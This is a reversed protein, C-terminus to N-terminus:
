GSQEECQPLRSILGSERPNPLPSFTSRACAVMLSEKQLFGCCVGKCGELRNPVCDRSGQVSGRNWLWSCGSFREPSTAFKSDSNTINTINTPLECSMNKRLRVFAVDICFKSGLRRAKECAAVLFGSKSRANRFECWSPSQTLVLQAIASVVLHKVM